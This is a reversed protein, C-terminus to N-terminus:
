NNRWHFRWRKWLSADQHDIVLREDAVGDLHHQVKVTM